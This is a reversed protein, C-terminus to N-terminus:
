RKKDLKKLQQWSNSQSVMSRVYAVNAAADAPALDRSAISEAEAFKGQLSLVIALNARVRSDARPNASAKRLISEAEGLRKSLAYSLGLNSLVGPEDPMIILAQQYFEQAGAHDGMQDAVSGQASYLRWDPRDPTHANALVQAAEPFRGVDSLARGYLALVERDKPNKIATTQLVAAAQQNQQLARLARAYAVSSNRNGPNKEYEAGWRAAEEQWQQPSLARPEALGLSGTVDGAGTTRACGGVLLLGLAAMPLMQKLRDFVSVAGVDGFGRM